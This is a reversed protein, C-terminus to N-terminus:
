NTKAEEDEFSKVMAIFDADVQKMRESEDKDVLKSGSGESKDLNGITEFETQKSRKAEKERQELMKEQRMERDFINGVAVREGGQVQALGHSLEILSVNGGADGVAVLRGTSSVSVSSLEHSGVKHSLAADSQRWFLDWVDLVGDARTTFFVGPRTPSWCGGTLHTDHYKTSFIPSKLDETWLRATWDGVTLFFKNHVPNRQISSIPGHHSSKMTNDFLLVGGNTRRNRLNVMTVLGQETGVLYKTAGAEHNYDMTSGGLISGEKETKLLLQDTPQSIKRVDWWLLRGDTSVSACSNGSKSSIWFVSSVPDHHSHEIESTEGASGQKRLDFVAVLGNLCGGLVLEPHKPNYKICGMPSPPALERNPTSPNM